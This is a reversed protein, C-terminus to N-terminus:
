VCKIPVKKLGLRQALIYTAYGDTLVNYKNITVVDRLYGNKRYFDLRQQIKQERPSYKKWEDQIIIDNIDMYDRLHNQFSQYDEEAIICRATQLGRRKIEKFSRWGSVLAYYNGDIIKRVVVVLNDEKRNPCPTFIGNMHVKETIYIKEISVEEVENRHSNIYEQLKM